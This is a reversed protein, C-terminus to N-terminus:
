LSGKLDPYNKEFWNLATRSAQSMRIGHKLSVFHSRLIERALDADSPGVHYASVLADVVRGVESDLSFGKKLWAYVSLGGAYADAELKVRAEPESLYLWAFEIANKHFDSVHQCEHTLIDAYVAFEAEELVLKPMFIESGLTTTFRNLFDDSSALGSGGFTKALDMGMAVAKMVESTEKPSVSAGFTSTMYDTFERKVKGLDTM